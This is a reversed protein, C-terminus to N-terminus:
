ATLRIELYDVFKQAKQYMEYLELSTKELPFSAFNEHILTNRDKGIELFAVMGEQLEVTGNIEAVAINKFEDGFLSFFTNANKATKWDFYTHYQREIAKNKVFSIVENCGCSKSTVFRIIIERVRTEFFSAASLLLSKRFHSEAINLLSIEHSQELMGVLLLNEQYFHDIITEPM